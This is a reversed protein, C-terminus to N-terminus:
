NNVANVLWELGHFAREAHQKEISIDTDNLSENFVEISWPGKYGTALVARVFDLTPLYAGRDHEGPMLRNGRSWIMRAPRPENDNPSHELPGDVPKRADGLQLFFVKETPVREVLSALSQRLAEETQQRPEQIGSPSCPDAYQRGLTNFSDLCLGFNAENVREVVDYAQDWRDIFTGWSLGEFAIRLPKLCGSEDGANYSAAEHALAAFDRVYVNADDSLQSAPQCNSCCLLLDTGLARMIPFRSRVRELAEKRKGADRWGEVDRMPQLSLIQLGLSGCLGAVYSACVLERQAHEATCPGHANYASKEEQRVAEGVAAADGLSRRQFSHPSAPPTLAKYITDFEESAAFADLDDQFIEVGQIGAAAIARLKSPLAHGATNAGVSHTFISYLPKSSPGAATMTM